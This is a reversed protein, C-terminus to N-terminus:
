SAARATSALYCLFRHILERRALTPYACGKFGKGEYYQLALMEVSVQEGDRGRWVSKGTTKEPKVQTSLDSKVTVLLCQFFLSVDAGPKRPTDEAGLFRLLTARAKVDVEKGKGGTTPVNVVCGAEDLQLRRDLRVGGVHVPDAKKQKGECQHREGLPVDLWRECRTLRRELMPRFVIHTDQDELAAIVGALAAKEVRLQEDDDETADRLHKMLLLARRDHWRGRRGRRWRKQALLADLM